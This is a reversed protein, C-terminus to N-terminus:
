MKIFKGVVPRGRETDIKYFYIGTSLDPSGFEFPEAGNRKEAHMMKGYADYVTFTLSGSYNSPIVRTSGTFPNPQIQIDAANTENISTAIESTIIVGYDEGQGLTPNYCPGTVEYYDSIVRMRLVTNKVSNSSITLSGTHVKTKKPSDFVLESTEFAGNNNYDIYTKVYEQYNPAVEISIPYTKGEILVTSFDCASNRYGGDDFTSSTTVNLTNLTVNRIGLPYQSSPTSTVPTCSAAPPAPYTTINKTETSGTGFSNTATLSVEYTGATPFTIIPDESASANPTGGPFSWAWSTPSNVSLDSFQISTGCSTSAFRSIPPTNPPICATSQLLSGRIGTLTAIMREKQGPSFRDLCKDFNYDMYNQVMDPQDGLGGLAVSRFPNKPTADDEDSTCTNTISICGASAASNGEPPTDCVLDGDLLCDNNKCDLNQFTHYLNLYHGIEHLMVKINKISTGFYMAEYVIGDNASGHASAFYAYGALDCNANTCLENVIWINMYKKPDWQVIKKLSDNYLDRNMNSYSTPNRTIGTTLQGNPDRSALCFRIGLDIGNESYLSDTNSYGQNIQAIANKVQADKINENTGEPTNPLHMIHVVVPITYVAEETKFFETSNTKEIIAKRILENFQQEKLVSSPDQRDRNLIEDSGCYHAPTQAQLFSIFSIQIIILLLNRKM